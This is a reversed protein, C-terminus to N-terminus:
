ISEKYADMQAQLKELTEETQCQAEKNAFTADEQRKEFQVSLQELKQTFEEQRGQELKQQAEKERDTALSSELEPRGFQIPRPGEM